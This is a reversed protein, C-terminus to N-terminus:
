FLSKIFNDLYKKENSECLKNYKDNSIIKPSKDNHSIINDYTNDNPIVDIFLMFNCNLQLELEKYKSIHKNQRKNNIEDIIPIVNGLRDIDITNDWNSSFPFIHELSFKNNLLNTAVKEKYYYFLLCKESFKRQRRKDSKKNGNDFIKKKFPKNGEKLIDNILDVFINKSIKESILEPNTYLKKSTNDIYTVGATYNIIDNDQYKEKKNKDKLDSILFHYLITKEISKIINNENENKKNYGIISIIILYMNNRKLTTFKSSCTTNFLKDNIQDTFINEYIKKLINCSYTIYKIFENINNTNFSKSILDNYLNKYLKFFLPLGIDDFKEIINYKINYKYNCYNQLGVLFDYANMQKNDDNEYNYCILAEDNSKEKYYKIIENIIEQEIINDTIKFNTINYLRCAYFEIDTLKSDFKNIDEFMKSLEETNYNEFLNVNISVNNDFNDSGNVKLKIQLRDIIHEIDDRIFTLKEKYFINYKTEFYPRVKMDIINNYSIEKFILNLKHKDSDELKKTTNIFETLEDLYEPFIDFPKDIFHKIANIRNNGDINTYSIKQSDMNQGFTIAHVSNRVNYLFEIYTKENPNNSNLKPKIDWKKKRQYKPKTIDKNDIKTILHKVYWQENKVTKLM